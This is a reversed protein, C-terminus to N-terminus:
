LFLLEQPMEVFSFLMSCFSTIRPGAINQFLALKDSNTMFYLRLANKAFNYKKIYTQNCYIAKHINNLFYVM